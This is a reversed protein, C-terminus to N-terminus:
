KFTWGQEKAFELLSLTKVDFDSDDCINPIKWRALLPSTSFTESTIITLSDHKAQAVLWPDAHPGEPKANVFDSYKKTMSGIIPGEISPRHPRFIEKNAQAWEYLEVGKGDETKIERYVELHSIITGEEILQSIRDWLGPTVDKSTWVAADNFIDMLSSTDITYKAPKSFLDSQM